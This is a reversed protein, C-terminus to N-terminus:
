MCGYYQEWQDQHPAIVGRMILEPRDFYNLRDFEEITGDYEPEPFPTLLTCKADDGSCTINM